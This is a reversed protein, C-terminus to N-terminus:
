RCHPLQTVADLLPSRQLEALAREPDRAFIRLRVIGAFDPGDVIVSDVRQLLTVLDGHLVTKRVHVDVSGCLRTGDGINLVQQVPPQAPLTATKTSADSSTAQQRQGQHAADIRREAKWFAVSTGFFIALTM